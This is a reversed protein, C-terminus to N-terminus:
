VSKAQAIKHDLMLKAKSFGSIATNGNTSFVLDQGNFRDIGKLIARAAASLHVDHTRANKMRGAPITWLSLDTSLESWRMGAVEERRQLTYLAILYFPGWPYPLSEAATRVARLEDDTLVRDRESTASAIPLNHFPNSRVLERKSAWAFCARAYAM